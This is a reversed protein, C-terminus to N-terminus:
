LFAFCFLLSFFWSKEFNSFNSAKRLRINDPCTFVPTPEKKHVHTDRHM